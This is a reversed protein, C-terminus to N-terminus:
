FYFNLGTRIVPLLNGNADKYPTNRENGLDVMIITYFSMEGVVRRGWGIGALYSSSSLSSTVPSYGSLTEKINYMDMEPQFQLFFQEFPHVRVFVGAGYSTAKYGQVDNASNNPDIYQSESYYNVNFAMGIDLWDKLTYGIEPLAGIAFSAVTGGGYGLNLSGGTFLKHKNFGYQQNSFTSTDNQDYQAYLKSIIM